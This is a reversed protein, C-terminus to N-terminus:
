LKGPRKRGFRFKLIKSNGAGHGSATKRTHHSIMEGSHAHTRAEVSRALNEEAEELRNTVQELDAGTEGKSLGRVMVEGRIEHLENIEHRAETVAEELQSPNPDSSDDTDAALSLGGDSTDDPLLAGKLLGLVKREVHEVKGGAGVADKATAGLMERVSKKTM